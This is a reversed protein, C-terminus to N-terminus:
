RWFSIYVQEGNRTISLNPFTEIINLEAELKELSFSYNKVIRYNLKDVVVNTELYKEIINIHESLLGSLFDSVARKGLSRLTPVRIALTWSDFLNKFEPLLQQLKKDYFILEEVNQLNLNM